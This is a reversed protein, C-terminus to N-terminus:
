KREGVLRRWLILNLGWITGKQLTLNGEKEIRTKLKQTLLSHDVTPFLHHLSQKNLNLLITGWESDVDATNRIQHTAFCETREGSPAHNLHALWSFYFSAVCLTSLLVAAGKWVGLALIHAAVRAPFLWPAARMWFPPSPVLSAWRCRHGVYGQIAVAIEGVLFLPYATLNAWRGEMWEVFPKMSMSDHDFETNVFPHHSSVHELLWEASSLGNWDLALCRADLMHLYNHGMGGLVTNLLAICFSLTLTGGSDSFLLSHLAINLVVFYFFENGEGRRSKRTPMEELAVKKLKRYLGFDTPRGKRTEFEGVQKLSHLLSSAAESNIHSTEFLESADTGRAFQVWVKGGPHVREVEEVSYLKGHVGVCEKPVGSNLEGVARRVVPHKEYASM